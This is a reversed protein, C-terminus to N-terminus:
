GTHIALTDLNYDPGGLRDLDAPGARRRAAAGCGTAASSTASRGERGTRYRALRRRTRRSGPEARGSVFTRTPALAALAQATPGPVLWRGARGGTPGPGAPDARRRDPRAPPERWPQGARDGGAPCRRPRWPPHQRHGRRARRRLRVRRAQGAQGQPGPPRGPRGVVGAPRQDAGWAPAARDPDRGAPLPRGVGGVPPRRPAQGPRRQWAGRRMSPCGAGPGRPGLPGAGARGQRQPWCRTAAGAPAGPWRRPSRGCRGASRAPATLWACARVVCGVLWSAAREPWRGRARGPWCRTPRTASIPRWWPRTSGSRGRV